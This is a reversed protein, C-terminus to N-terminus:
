RGAPVSTSQRKHADIFTEIDEIAYFVRTHIKVYRPGCGRRRWDQLTRKRFGFHRQVEAETLLPRRPSHGRERVQAQPATRLTSHFSDQPLM